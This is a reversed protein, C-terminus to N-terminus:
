NVDSLNVLPEDGSLKELNAISNNVSCFRNFLRCANVVCALM